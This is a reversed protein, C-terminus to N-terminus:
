NQALKKMDLSLAIMLPGVILSYLGLVWVFAVGASAPQFLLIIGAAIAVLSAFIMLVRNTETGSETIAAVGEFVGRIILIFGILLILTAFTVGPHRLLYVGVGLEALGLLLVLFWSNHKSVGAVGNIINIIGSVLIYAGFLYLLTVITIGPWFVAAIGFIIALIGRLTLTWWYESIFRKEAANM